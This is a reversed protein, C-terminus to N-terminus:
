KVSINSLDILGLEEMERLLKNKEVPKVVYAECGLRFAGMVNAPDDLATTMIVKVGDLGVIGRENEMQRIAKLVEHGDTGPMMIDLCVLDYRVGEDLACKVADIAEQGNVAVFCDGFQSLCLQMVRRDIFEDDVILINLGFGNAAATPEPVPGKNGITSFDRTEM